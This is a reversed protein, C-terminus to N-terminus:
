DNREINLTMYVMDLYFSKTERTLRSDFALYEMVASEVM